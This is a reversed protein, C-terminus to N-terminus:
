DRKEMKKDKNGSYFCHCASLIFATSRDNGIHFSPNENHEVSKRENQRDDTSQVPSGNTKELEINDGPDEASLVREEAADNVGDHSEGADPADRQNEACSFVDLLEVSLGM